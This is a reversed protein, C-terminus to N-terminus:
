NVKEFTFLDLHDDWGGREFHVPSLGNSHALSIMWLPSVLSIGYYSGAIESTAAEFNHGEAYPAYGYGHKKFDDLMSARDSEAVQYIASKSFKSAATEGRTSTILRGGVALKKSVERLFERNHEEDLHTMLAGIIILDFTEDPLMDYNFSPPSVLIAQTKLVETQFAIAEPLVDVCTIRSEPFKKVLHRTVRGFGCPLELINSAQAGMAAAYSALENGCRMYVSFHHADSEALQSDPSSGAYLEDHVSITTNITSEFEFRQGHM